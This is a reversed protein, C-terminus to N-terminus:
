GSPRMAVVSVVVPLTARLYANCINQCTSRLALAGPPRAQATWRLRVHTTDPILVAYELVTTADLGLGFVTSMLFPLTTNLCFGTEKSLAVSVICPANEVM